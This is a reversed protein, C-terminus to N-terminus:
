ISRTSPTRATTTSSTCARSSPALASRRPHPRGPRRPRREDRRGQNELLARQKKTVLNYDFAMLYERKPGTLGYPQATSSTTILVHEPGAWQVGRLKTDGFNMAAILKPDETAERILLMRKEGDTVAIALKAGDPSIEVQEVNPLRLEYVSLPPVGAM